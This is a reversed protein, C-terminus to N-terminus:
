FKFGKHIACIGGTLNEYSCRDFGAESMMNKLQEQGPHMRISEALYQYSKSDNAVLKGLFPLVKFSYLDYLSTLKEYVPKSFELIVLRGGPKLVRYMENLALQKQTVNRLGFGIAVCDFSNSALPLCEANAQLYEIPKLQGQDLLKSRGAHLMESNIDALIVSGTNGLERAFASTLDGTGGALDLITQGAKVACHQIAIKKWVRHIGLSMLDNMLDYKSAVSNFVDSVLKAKEDVPVQQFGFDTTTKNNPM